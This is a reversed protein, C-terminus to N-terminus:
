RELRVSMALGHCLQLLHLAGEDRSMSKGEPARHHGNETPPRSRDDAEGKKGAKEGGKSKAAKGAAAREPKTTSAQESPADPKKHAEDGGAASQATSTSPGPQDAASADLADLSGVDEVAAEAAADPAESDATVSGTEEDPKAKAGKKKKRRKKACPAAKSRPSM